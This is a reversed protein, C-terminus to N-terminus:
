VGKESRPLDCSMFWWDYLWVCVKTVFLLRKELRQIKEDKDKCEQQAKGLQGKVERLSHSAITAEAETTHLRLSPPLSLSLSPPPPLPPPSPPLSPLPLPLSPPLSNVSQVLPPVCSCLLVSLFFDGM